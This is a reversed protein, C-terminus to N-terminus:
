NYIVGPNLSRSKGITKFINSFGYYQRFIKYYLLEEKSKIEVDYISYRKNFEDDLIVEEAYSELIKATGSGISFNEKKRWVFNYPLYAESVKRLIWKEIFDGSFKQFYLKLEPSINSAEEILKIDLFPVRGEISNAMTIRDVRQLNTNHLDGTINKLEKYLEENTNNIKKLYHYGGFLEDAGEGSLVVKVYEHALRSVFYTPIASRVLAPDFSELCYIVEPLVEIIEKKGYEFTHHKTGLFKSIEESHLIDASQPTGVAFSHLIGYTNIKAIASIISSDLGESLFVGLPVDSILRKVVAEELNKRISTTIKDINTSFKNPIKPLGYYKKFGHNSSYYHGAPFENVDKTAKLLSKIESSFYLKDDGYGYYLPKIGLPDRAIFLDKNSCIAFAFMGDLKKVVDKGEEEFLHLIVESDSNTKFDHGKLGKKIKNYNYIEGNFVLRLTEDENTMPQKGGGVDIISLRNHGLSFGDRVIIGQGDPGRHSIEELMSDLILSDSKGWIGAIGCM